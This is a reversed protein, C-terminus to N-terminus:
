TIFCMYVEDDLFQKKNQSHYKYRVAKLPLEYGRLKKMMSLILFTSGLRTKTKKKLSPLIM